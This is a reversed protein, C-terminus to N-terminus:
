SGMMEFVLINKNKLKASKYNQLKTLISNIIFNILLKTKPTAYNKLVVVYDRKLLQAGRLQTEYRKHM